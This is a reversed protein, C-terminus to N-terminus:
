IKHSFERMVRECEGIIHIKEIPYTKTLMELGDAILKGIEETNFASWSYLTDVFAAPDVSQSFCQVNRSLLLEKIEAM